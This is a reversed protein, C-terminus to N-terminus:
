LNVETKSEVQGVLYFLLTAEAKLGANRSKSYKRTEGGGNKKCHCWMERGARWRMNWFM